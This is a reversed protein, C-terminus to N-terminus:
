WFLEINWDVDHNMKLPANSFIIRFQENVETKSQYISRKVKRKEEKYIEMCGRKAVEDRSGMGGEM